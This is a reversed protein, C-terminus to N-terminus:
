RLAASSRHRWAAPAVGTVKKFARSFAADSDYGVQRAVASVKTGHDALLTAALHIRWRALYHMPPEGVFHTFRETLVSRSSAVEHALEEITWARGPEKHLRALARGILPDRLGALWGRQAEPVTTLYRRVVEVFMLESLRLLISRRGARQGQAEGVAFDILAALRDRGAAAARRLPLLRPLTALVPNFPLADCGLFGCIVQVRQPLDGGEEVVFPLRGAAMMQFWELNQALSLGSSSRSPHSSLQYADGHPVVVIDGPDLRVPALGDMHCWCTGETIVHYSVIHQARPLIVPALTTSDPAEAIWPEAADVLFFLAGTLRVAELVDSLADAGARDAAPSVTAAAASAIDGAAFAHSGSALDHDRAM